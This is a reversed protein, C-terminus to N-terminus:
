RRRGGRIVQFRSGQHNAREIGMVMGLVMLTAGMSTGGASILPLNVGLVPLMILVVSINIFAQVLIWFTVGYVFMRQYSDNTKRAIKMLTIGLFVFVAIVFLAGLLGFEEGIIAFIFDNQSEPVWSWKMKSQGLGTGFIGGAAFAWKGHEGQWNYQNPDPQTPFLWALIRGRRSGSSLFIFPIAALAGLTIWRLLRDSMGGMFYMGFLVGAMVIMTGMDKSFWGVLLFLVLFVATPAVWFRYDDHDFNRQNVIISAVMMILGIKLFESPQLTFFYLNLWNRNGNVEKGLPTLLVLLQAIVFIGMIIPGLARVAEPKLYAFWIMAFTGGLIGFLQSRMEGFPGAANKVSDVYSSSFVMITGFITTLAIIAVLTKFEASQGTFVETLVNKVQHRKEAVWDGRSASRRVRAM